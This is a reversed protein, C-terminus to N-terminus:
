GRRVFGHPHFHDIALKELGAMKGRQQGREKVKVHAEHDPHQEAREGHLDGRIEREFGAWFPKMTASGTSAPASSRTTNPTM